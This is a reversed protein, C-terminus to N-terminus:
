LGFKEIKQQLAKRSIGLIKASKSKNWRTKELATRIKEKELRAVSAKLDLSEIMDTKTEQDEKQTAPAKELIKREQEFGEFHAKDLSEDTAQYLAREIWNKLQRVNGPWSLASLYELAEGSVNQVSCAIRRRLRGIFYDCMLPIDEKRKRLAPVVIQLVNIRYYLDERFQKGAILEPIDKNTASLVRVDVNLTKESGVPTVEGNQLVRLLKAQAQLSLDGIEDLFITGGDALEFKGKRNSTAHTFAGKTHGFLESELLTDPIAACNFVIFPECSRDSNEHIYRAMLDKGTGSEGTILVPANGKTAFSNAMELASKIAKGSGIIQVKEPGANGLQEQLSQVLYTSQFVSGFLLGLASIFKLDETSFAAVTSRSEIYLTGILNKGSLIPVCLISRLNSIVASQASSFREDDLADSVLLAQATKHVENLVTRSVIMNDEIGKKHRAVQIKRGSIDARDISLLAHDFDIAKGVTDMVKEVLLDIDLQTGIIEVIGLLLSLRDEVNGHSLTITDLFQQRSVTDPDDFQVNAQIDGFRITDEELVQKPKRPSLRSDNVFTGNRSGLDELYLSDGIFTFRAHQRSVNINPIRAAVNIDRGVVTGTELDFKDWLSDDWRILLKAM